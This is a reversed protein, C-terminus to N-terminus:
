PNLTKVLNYSYDSIVLSKGKGLMGHYEKWTLVREKFMNNYRLAEYPTNFWLKIFFLGKEPLEKLDKQSFSPVNKNNDILWYNGESDTALGFGGFVRYQEGPPLNLIKQIESDTYFELGLKDLRRVKKNYSEFKIM